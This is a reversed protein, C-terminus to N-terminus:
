AVAVGEIAILGKYTIANKSGIIVFRKDHEALQAIYERFLSFPPNTVVIDAEALLAVCEESRFDGDGVLDTRVVDHTTMKGDGDLDRGRVLELKYSPPPNGSGAGTYHTSILKKLGFFDFHLAGPKTSARNDPVPESPFRNEM